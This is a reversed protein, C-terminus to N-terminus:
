YLVCLLVPRLAGIPLNFTTKASPLSGRKTRSLEMHSAFASQLTGWCTASGDPRSTRRENRDASWYLDHLSNASSESSTLAARLLILTLGDSWPAGRKAHCLFAFKIMARNAMSSALKTRISPLANTRLYYPNQTADGRM